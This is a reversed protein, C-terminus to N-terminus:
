SACCSASSVAMAFMSPVPTSADAGTAIRISFTQCQLSWMGADRMVERLHARREQKRSVRVHDRELHGSQM